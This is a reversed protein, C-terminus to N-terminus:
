AHQTVEQSQTGAARRARELIRKFNQGFVKRKQSETLRTFTLWAVQPRPDRMPADTGFLVRDDGIERVLFEITGNTVTTFNLQAVINDFRCCMEAAWRAYRWSQGCHDLHISLNPYRTALNVTCQTAAAGGKPDYVIYLRHDNAYRLWRDFKPDDYDITQSPTFTKLGPFQLEEHYRRIVQEIKEPGDYDPNITALGIFENPFRRVADEVVRNGLDTDMALPGAWSMIATRDIGCRRTLELM